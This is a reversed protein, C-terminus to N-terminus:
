GRPLLVGSLRIWHATRYCQEMRYCREMRYCSQSTVEVSNVANMKNYLMLYIFSIFSIIIRVMDKSNYMSDSSIYYIRSIWTTWTLMRQSVRNFEITGMWSLWWTM